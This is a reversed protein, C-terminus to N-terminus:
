DDWIVWIVLEYNESPHSLWPEPEFAGRLKSTHASVKTPVDVTTGVPWLRFRKSKKSNISLENVKRGQERSNVAISKASWLYM